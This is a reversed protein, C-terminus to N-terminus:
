SVRAASDWRSEPPFLVEGFRFPLDPPADAEVAAVEGKQAAFRSFHEVVGAEVACPDHAGAIEILSQDFRDFVPASISRQSYAGTQDGGIGARGEAADVFQRRDEFVADHAGLQLDRCSGSLVVLGPTLFIM